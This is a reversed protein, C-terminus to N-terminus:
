SLKAEKCHQAVCLKGVLRRIGWLRTTSKDAPRWARDNEYQGSFGLTLLTMMVLRSALQDDSIPSGRTADAIRSAELSDLLM